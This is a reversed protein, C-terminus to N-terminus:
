LLKPLINTKITAIRGMWSIQLNAWRDLDKQIQDILKDYNDAKITSYKATLWTGLYKIKNTTQIGLERTLAENQRKTSNKTIIKTKEKNIKLGAVKGFAEIEQLNKSSEKPDELIFVM